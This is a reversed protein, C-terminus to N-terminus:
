LLRHSREDFLAILTMADDLGLVDMLDTKCAGALGALSGFTGLLLAACSEDGALATLAAVPHDAAFATKTKGLLLERQVADVCAVQM